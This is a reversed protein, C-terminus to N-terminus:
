FFNDLDASPLTPPLKRKTQDPPNTPKIELSRELVKSSHFPARAAVHVVFHAELGTSGLDAASANAVKTADTRLCETPRTSEVM